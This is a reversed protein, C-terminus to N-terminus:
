NGFYQFLYENGSYHCRTIRPCALTTRNYYKNIIGLARCGAVLEQVDYYVAKLLQNPTQWVKSFFSMIHESIIFMELIM